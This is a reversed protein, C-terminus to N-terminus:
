SAEWFLGWQFITPGTPDGSSNFTAQFLSLSGFIINLYTSLDRLYSSEKILSVAVYRGSTVQAVHCFPIDATTYKTLYFVPKHRM